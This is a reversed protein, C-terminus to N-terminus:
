SGSNSLCVGITCQNGGAGTFDTPSTKCGPALVEEAALEITRLRPKEYARKDKEHESTV